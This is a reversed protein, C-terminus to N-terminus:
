FYLRARFEIRSSIQREGFETGAGRALAVGIAESWDNTDVLYGEADLAPMAPDDTTTTATAM